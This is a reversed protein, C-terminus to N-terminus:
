QQREHLSVFSCVSDDLQIAIARATRLDETSNTDVLFRTLNGKMDTINAVLTLWGDSSRLKKLQLFDM